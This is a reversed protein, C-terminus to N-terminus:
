SIKLDSLAGMRFAFWSPNKGTFKSQCTKWQFLQAWGKQCTNSIHSQAEPVVMQFTSTGELCPIVFIRKLRQAKQLGPPPAQHCNKFLFIFGNLREVALVQLPLDCAKSFNTYITFRTVRMGSARLWLEHAVLQSGMQYSFVYWVQSREDSGWYWLTKQVQCRSAM